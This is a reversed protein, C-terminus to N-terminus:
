ACSFFIQQNNFNTFEIDTIRQDHAGEQNIQGSPTIIKINYSTKGMANPVELGIFIFEPFADFCKVM